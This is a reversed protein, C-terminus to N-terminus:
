EKPKKPLEMWWDVVMPRGYCWWCKDEDDYTVIGVWDEEENYGLVDVIPKPLQSKVSIWQNAPHWKCRDIM